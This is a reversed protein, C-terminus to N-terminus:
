MELINELDKNMGGAYRDPHLAVEKQAAMIDDLVDQTAIKVEKGNATEILANREAPRLTSNLDKIATSFNNKVTNLGNTVDSVLEAQRDVGLGKARNMFQDSFKGSEQVKGLAKSILSEEGMGAGAVVDRLKALAKTGTKAALPLGLAAGKLVGGMAGGFLAGQGYHSLIKESNLDPDGLAFENLTQQTGAYLAGEVASGLAQAGIDATGKLM